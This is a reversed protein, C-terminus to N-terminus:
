PALGQYARRGSPGAVLSGGACHARASRGPHARWWVAASRLDWGPLWGEVLDSAAAPVAAAAELERLLQLRKERLRANRAQRRKGSADVSGFREAYMLQLEDASWDGLGEARGM